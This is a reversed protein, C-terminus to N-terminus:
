PYGETCVLSNIKRRLHLQDVLFSSICAKGLGLLWHCSAVSCRRAPYLSGLLRRSQRISSKLGLDTVTAPSTDPHNPCCIRHGDLCGSRGARQHTAYLCATRDISSPISSHSLHCRDWFLIIAVERQMAHYLPTQSLIVCIPSRRQLTTQRLGM